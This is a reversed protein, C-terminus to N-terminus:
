QRLSCLCREENEQLGLANTTIIQLNTYHNTEMAAAEKFPSRAAQAADRYGDLVRQGGTCEMCIDSTSTM